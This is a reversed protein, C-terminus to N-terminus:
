AAAWTRDAREVYFRVVTGCSSCLDVRLPEWDQWGIGTWRGKEECVIGVAEAQGKLGIRLGGVIQGGGCSPCLARPTMATESDDKSRDPIENM